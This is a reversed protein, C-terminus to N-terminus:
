AAESLPRAAGDEIPRYDDFIDAFTEELVHIPIAKELPLRGKGLVWEDEGPVWGARLLVRRALRSDGDCLDKFAEFSVTFGNNKHSLLRNTVNGILMTLEACLLREAPTDATTM